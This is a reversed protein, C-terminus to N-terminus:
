RWGIVFASISSMRPTFTSPTTFVSASLCNIFIVPLFSAGPLGINYPVVFSNRSLNPSLESFSSGFSPSNM